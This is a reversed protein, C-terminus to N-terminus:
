YVTCWFHLFLTIVFIHMIADRRSQLQESKFILCHYHQKVKASESLTLVKLSQVKLTRFQFSGWLLSEEPWWCQAIEIQVKSTAWTIRAIPNVENKSKLLAFNSLALVKDFHSLLTVSCHQKESKFHSKFQANKSKLVSHVLTTEPDEGTSLYRKNYAGLSCHTFTM